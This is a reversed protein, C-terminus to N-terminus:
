IVFCETKNAHTFDISKCFELGAFKSDVCAQMIRESVVVKNTQTCTAINCDGLSGELLVKYDFWYEPALPDFNTVRYISNAMDCFGGRVLTNVIYFEMSCDTVTDEGTSFEAKYFEAEGCAELELLAKLEGSVLYPGLCVMFHTKRIRELTGVDKVKYILKDKIGELSIGMNFFTYDLSHEYDYELLEFADVNSGIFYTM